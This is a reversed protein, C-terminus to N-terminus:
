ILPVLIKGIEVLAAGITTIDDISLSGIMTHEKPNPKGTKTGDPAARDAGEHGLTRPTHSRTPRM